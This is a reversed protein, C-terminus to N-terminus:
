RRLMLGVISRESQMTTRRLESTPPLNVIAIAASASLSIENEVETFSRFRVITDGLQRSASNNKEPYWPVRLKSSLGRRCSYNLLLEWHCLNKDVIWWISSIKLAERHVGTCQLQHVGSGGVCCPGCKPGFKRLFGLTNAGSAVNRFATGWVHIGSSIMLAWHNRQFWGSKSSKICRPPIGSAKWILSVLKQSVFILNCVNGAAIWTQICTAQVWVEAFVVNYFNVSYSKTQHMKGLSVPFDWLFYAGFITPYSEQCDNAQRSVEPAWSLFLRMRRKSRVAFTFHAAEHHGVDTPIMGITWYTGTGNETGVINVNRNVDVLKWPARTVPGFCTLCFYALYM